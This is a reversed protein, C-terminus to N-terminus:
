DRTNRLAMTNSIFIISIHVVFVVILYYIGNEIAEDRKLESPRDARRDFSAEDQLQILFYTM